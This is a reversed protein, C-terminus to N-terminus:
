GAASPQTSASPAVRQALLAVIWCALGCVLTIAVWEWTLRAVSTQGLFMCWGLSYQDGYCIVTFGSSCVAGFAFMDSWRCSLRGALFAGVPVLPMLCYDYTLLGGEKPYFRPILSELALLLGVFSALVTLARVRPQSRIRDPLLRLFVSPLFPALIILLILLLM